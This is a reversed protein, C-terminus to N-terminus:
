KSQKLQELELKCLKYREKWSSITKRMNEKEEKLMDIEVLLETMTKSVVNGSQENQLNANIRNREQVESLIRESSEDGIGIQKNMKRMMEHKSDKEDNGVVAYNLTGITINADNGTITGNTNGM